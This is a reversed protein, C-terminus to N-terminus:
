AGVKGERVPFGGQLEDNNGIVIWSVSTFPSYDHTIMTLCDTVVTIYNHWTCTCTRICVHIYIYIDVDVDVCAYVFVYVYVSM